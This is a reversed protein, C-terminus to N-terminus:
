RYKAILLRRASDLQQWAEYDIATAGESDRLVALQSQALTITDIVQNSAKM